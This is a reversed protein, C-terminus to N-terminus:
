KAIRNKDGFLQHINTLQDIIELTVKTVKLKSVFSTKM